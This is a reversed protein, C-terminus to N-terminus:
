GLLYYTGKQEEIDKPDVLEQDWSRIAFRQVDCGAQEHAEIERRIFTTSTMPYANM